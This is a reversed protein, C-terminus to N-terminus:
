SQVEGQREIRGPQQPGPVADTVVKVVVLNRRAHDVVGDQRDLLRHRIRDEVAFGVVIELDRQAEDAAVEDEGDPVMAAAEGDIREIRLFQGVEVARVAAAEEEDAPEHVLEFQRVVTAELNPGDLAADERRRRGIGARGRRRGDPSMAVSAPLRHELLDVLREERQIPLVAEPVHVAAILAHEFPPPVLDEAPRHHLGEGGEGARVRHDRQLLGHFEPM